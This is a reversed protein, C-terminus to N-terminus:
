EHYSRALEDKKDENWDVSKELYNRYHLRCSTASRGPFEKAIDVWKMNEGRLKILRTDDELSWKIRTKSTPRSSGSADNQTTASTQPSSLGPYPSQYNQPQYNPPQCYGSQYGQERDGQSQYRGDRASQINGIALSLDSTPGPQLINSPAPAHPTANAVRYPLFRDSPSGPADPSNNSM